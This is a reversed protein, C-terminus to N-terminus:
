LSRLADVPRARSAKVAPYLAALAAVGFITLAAGPLTSDRLEFPMVPDMGVLSAMAEFETGVLPIPHAVFWGVVPLALALGVALGVGALILSEAYIMRFIARPQLGLALLAGLERQRELVSMLITNLIGFGVVIVLILLLIYMGADDVVIFQELEPLVEAWGNVELPEPAGALRAGLEAVLAPVEPAGEALLALETVRDGFVLFAQADSLDVLALTRELAPEPLRITGTVQFLEYANELTYAVSYVLVDDGVGVGLNEALQAGLVIPREAAGPLFRGGPVLRGPLSSVEGERAPDVGLLLVGQTTSGHSLLAASSVRPAMGRVGPTSAVAEELAPTVTMAYELTRNELYGEGAVQVHGSAVRVGDEIMKTHMGDAMAVFFVVLFVAFVTAAVTLGTRRPNRWVNRWALRLVTM